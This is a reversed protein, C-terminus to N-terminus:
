RILDRTFTTPRLIYYPIYYPIYYSHLLHQWLIYYTHLLSFRVGSVDMEDNNRAWAGFVCGHSIGVLSWQM